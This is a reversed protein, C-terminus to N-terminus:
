QPTIPSQRVAALVITLDDWWFHRVIRLRTYIRLFVFILMLGELGATIGIIGHGWHGEDVAQTMTGVYACIQHHKLSSLSTQAKHTGGQQRPDKAAM